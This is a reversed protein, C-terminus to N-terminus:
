PLLFPIESGVECTSPIESSTFGTATCAWTISGVGKTPTLYIYHSGTSGTTPKGNSTLSIRIIGAYDYSVNPDKAINMNAITDNTNLIEGLEAKLGGVATIATGVKARTTYNAYLPIAVAALIAIIAIVVMLEVLSFGKKTKSKLNKM